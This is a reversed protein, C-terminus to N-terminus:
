DEKKDLEKQKEVLFNYLARLSDTMAFSDEGKTSITLLNKYISFLYNINEQTM